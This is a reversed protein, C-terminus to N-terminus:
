EEEDEQNTNDSKSSINKLHEMKEDLNSIYTIIPVIDVDESLRFKEIVDGIFVSYINYNFIGSNEIPYRRLVKFIIDKICELLSYICDVADIECLIVSKGLDGDRFIETEGKNVNYSIAPIVNKRFIFRITFGIDGTLTYDVKTKPDIYKFDKFYGTIWREITFVNRGDKWIQDKINIKTELISDDIVESCSVCTKM